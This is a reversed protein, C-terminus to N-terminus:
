TWDVETVSVEVWTARENVADIRLPGAERVTGDEARINLVRDSERVDTGRPLALTRAEIVVERGESMQTDGEAQWYACPVDVLHAQWSAPPTEGYADAQGQSADRELDCRSGMLASWDAAIGVLLEPALAPLSM